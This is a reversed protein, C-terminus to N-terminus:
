IKDKYKPIEKKLIEISNEVLKPKCWDEYSKHRGFRKSLMMAYCPFKCGHSCGSIHNITYDGYEVKTKYLLSKRKITEM